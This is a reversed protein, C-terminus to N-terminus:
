SKCVNSEQAGEAVDKGVKILINNEGSSLYFCFKKGWCSIPGIRSPLFSIPPLFPLLSLALVTFVQRHGESPKDQFGPAPSRAKGANSTQIEWSDNLRSFKSPTM